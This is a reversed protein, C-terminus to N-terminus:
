FKQKKKNQMKQCNKQKFFLKKYMKLKRFM